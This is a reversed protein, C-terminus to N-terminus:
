VSKNPEILTQVASIIQEAKTAWEQPTLNPYKEIETKDINLGIENLKTFLDNRFAEAVDTKNLWGFNPSLMGDTSLTFISRPSIHTFVPGFSGRTTGTGLRLSDGNVVSFDYLVKFADFFEQSLTEKAKQLVEEATWKRRASGARTQDTIDKKVEDGYLRPIIIEQEEHKYYEFEVAYIDFKSNQNMYLILDRLRADLQDMLIVFKIRGNSLNASVNTILIDVSEDDFGYFNQIKERVSVNSDKQTFRDLTLLFDEFKYVHKWLSAGYDLSQAVVRRKDANNFLKTEIIYLNGNNDVGLADIPGSETPFERALILLRIDDEIEYLPISEPNEHIYQQLYDEKEITSKEVKVAGKGNKSIIISMNNM